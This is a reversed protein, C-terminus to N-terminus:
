NEVTVFGPYDSYVHVNRHDYTDHLSLQFIPRVKEIIEMCAKLMISEMGEIDIKILSPLRLNFEKILSPLTRYSISQELNNNGNCDNFITKTVFEIEHLAFPLITVNKLKLTNEILDSVNIPSGEIAVVNYGLKSFETTLIGKHAGIDYVTDGSRLHKSYVDKYCSSLINEIDEKSINM